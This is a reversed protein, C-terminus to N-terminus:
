FLPGLLDLEARDSWAAGTLPLVRLFRSQVRAVDGTRAGTMDIRIYTNAALRFGARDYLRREGFLLAFQANSGKGIALARDLLATAIGRGRAQPATAVDGLGIVDILQGDVRIARYFLAVHGLIMGDRWVVRLHPRQQYFSRGGFDTPFSARLLAAIQAEDEGTLAHEAVVEIM